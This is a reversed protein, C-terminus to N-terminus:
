SGRSSRRRWATLTGTVYTTRVSLGRVLPPVANQPGMAFTAMAALRYFPASDPLPGGAQVQLAGEVLFGTLLVAEVALVVPRPPGGRRSVAIRLVAGLAVGALFIPITFASRLAPVWYAEGLHTGMTVSNGTMNATFLHFLVLYGLGDV